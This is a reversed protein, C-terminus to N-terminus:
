SVVFVYAKGIVEAWMLQGNLGHKHGWYVLEWGWDRGVAADHVVGEVGWLVWSKNFFLGTGRDGLGLFEKWGIFGLSVAM